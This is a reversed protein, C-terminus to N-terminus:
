FMPRRWCRWPPRLILIAPSLRNWCLLRMPSRSELTGRARVLAKARLYQQYSELDGTRNAVLSAGQKLGLPVQLSAAIAKAIEDQIAFLDTLDRDYNEAWLHSDDTVRILQATMRVRNGAKRVSGEILHTAGLAQGIARLDKNQGKFQFASTRGLVRLGPVKALAATIEETMGDSFFEQSADGSLNVLPLVAISIGGPSPTASAVGAQQQQAIRAGPAMGIQQYIFIGIVVALAGTLM